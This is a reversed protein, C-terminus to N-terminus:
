KLMNDILLTRKLNTIEDKDMIRSYYLKKLKSLYNYDILTVWGHRNLLNTRHLFSITIFLEKRYMIKFRFDGSMLDVKKFYDMNPQYGDKDVIKIPLLDSKGKKRWTRKRVENLLALKVEDSEKIDIFEPFVKLFKFYDIQKL